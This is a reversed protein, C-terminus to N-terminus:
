LTVGFRAAIKGVFERQKEPASKSWDRLYQAFSRSADGRLANLAAVAEWREPAEEFLPLLAAAMKLNSERRGADKRLQPEEARFWDALSSGEPLAAKALREERYKRLAGAYDKWNPYPPRTKWTEAMRGLVFLSAAECLTEEFWLNPNPYEAYGCVIHGMEHGFQFAFQAWHRGEVNLKVRIEGAPGREFLTIPTSTSRSVQILPFKRGPFREALPEGASRLVKAVDEAGADGWGDAAVRLELPERKEQLLAAILLAAAWTRM